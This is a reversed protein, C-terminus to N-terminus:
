ARAEKVANIRRGILYAATGGGVGILLLDFGRPAFHEAIPALLLGFAIALWDMAERANRTLATIFYVPSLFLLGAGLPKPLDGMLMYGLGTLLATTMICAHAFGFYFAMRADRPVDHVRRMSETWVTVAVFHSAIILTPLNTRRGRLLPLLSLCMPLLRMSSICISFAIAAPAVGAAVSGFFLVQAPGAWILLTSAVAAWLPFGAERALGGVGTLAFAVLWAPGILAQRAGEVTWEFRTLGGMQLPPDPALASSDDSATMDAGFDRRAGCKALPMGAGVSM